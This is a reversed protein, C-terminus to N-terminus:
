APTDATEKEAAAPSEDRTDPEVPEAAPEPDPEVTAEELVGIDGAIRGGAEIQLERYRVRGTVEGGAAISLRGRVTLEGEARGSITAEEVHAAGKFRGGEGVVLARAPLEAEVLGAVELTECARIEGKFHIGPGVVLRGRTDRSSERGKSTDPGRKHAQVIGSPDVTRSPIGPVLPRVIHPGGPSTGREPARQPARKPGRNPGAREDGGRGGIPHM